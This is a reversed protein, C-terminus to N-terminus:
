CRRYLFGHIYVLRLLSTWESLTKMGFEINPDNSRVIIPLSGVLCINTVIVKHILYKKGDTLDVVVGSHKLPGFKINKGELPRECRTANTVRMNLLAMLESHSKIDHPFKKPPSNLHFLVTKKILLLLM